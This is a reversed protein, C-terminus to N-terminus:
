YNYNRKKNKLLIVWAYKSYINIACLLFIFGKNFKSISQMDALDAGCINDIFSSHINRKEFKRIIPTHLKEILYIIFWQLLDM